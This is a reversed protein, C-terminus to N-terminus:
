CAIAPGNPKTVAKFRARCPIVNRMTPLNRRGSTIDPIEYIHGYLCLRLAKGNLGRQSWEAGLERTDGRM